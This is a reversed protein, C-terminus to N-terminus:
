DQEDSEVEATEEEEGNKRKRGRKKKPPVDDRRAVVADGLGLSRAVRRELDAEAHGDVDGYVARVLGRVGQEGVEIKGRPGVMWSVDEEGQAGASERVKVLYGEKEMRKLLLETKSYGPIPTHDELGLRRLYREMKTDALEDGSLAVLSVLLTYLSTYQAETAQTPVSSPPLIAPDHFPAPLLSVLTYSQATKSQSQSQTKAARKQALTVKEKEPLEVMEMGFVSRLQLQAQEFVPKFQRGASGLVKERIMQRRIPQRPYECALALRVLKKVMQEANGDSDDHGNAYGTDDEDSQNDNQTTSRRGQTAPEPSGDDEGEREARRKRALAPM